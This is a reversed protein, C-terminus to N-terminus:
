LTEAASRERWDLPALVAVALAAGWRHGRGCPRAAGGGGASAEQAAEERAM